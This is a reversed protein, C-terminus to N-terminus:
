FVMGAGVTLGDLNTEDTNAPQGRRLVIWRWGAELFGYRGNNMPVHMRGAVTGDWGFYGELFSVSWKCHMSAVGVGVNALARDWSMGGFLLGVGSSRARQFHFTRNAVSLRDDYHSYGVFVSSTAQKQQFWDYVLDARQIYRRWKSHIRSFQPYYINGFYFGGPTTVNTNDDFFYSMFSYRIGWNPRLQCRADAEYLYAWKGLGLDRYLDLQTGVNGIPNTGWVITNSNMRAYWLRAGLEIQKCGVRPQIPGCLWPGCGTGPCPASAPAFVPGCPPACPPACAQVEPPCYQRGPDSEYVSRHGHSGHSSRGERARPVQTTGYATSGSRVAPSTSRPASRHSLDSEVSLADSEIGPAPAVKAREYAWPTGCGIVAALVVQCVLVKWPKTRM